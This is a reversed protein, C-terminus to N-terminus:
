AVDRQSDPRQAEDAAALVASIQTILSVPDLPKAVAGDFGLAQLRGDHVGEVDATFALIPTMRNPGPAGRILNFAAIGDMRPMRLDMLIVDFPKTAALAVASEGDVAETIDADVAALFLRVLDRNAPHDDTVLVRVGTCVPAEGDAAATEGLYGQIRPAPIDLFFRSGQGTSSAVGIQGGMAEVVGKCIALGLGTGGHDRNLSGDVQSFRKFLMDLRDASIGPGTDAVELTLRQAADAYALRLTVHGAETFKVANGVLNLLVQRLRDPDASIVLGDPTSDELHLAIDKAAAQPTFMELTTRGLASVDIPEAHFSVQGAELKSFDLIDNVVCLLARSAESVRDIYARSLPSLDPQEAALHTFGVVSTLPTRLEHSMNALFESKVAAAQAAETHATRAADLAGKLRVKLREGEDRAAALPVSGLFCVTLFIQLGVIRVAPDQMMIPGHNTFAATVGVAAIIVFGAVAGPLGMRWTPLALLASILFILPYRAGFFVWVTAAALLALTWTERWAIPARLPQSLVLLAPTVTLLGLVDAQIWILLGRLFHHSGLLSLFASAGMAGMISAAVSAALFGMLHRTRAIDFTGGCRNRLIAACSLYEVAGCSTLGVAIHLPVGAILNAAVNGTMAFAILLPWRATACRLLAAVVVANALWIPSVQEQGQGFVVCAYALIGVALCLALGGLLGRRDLTWTQPNM